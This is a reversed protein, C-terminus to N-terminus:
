EFEIIGTKKYVKQMTKRARRRAAEAGRALIAKLTDEDQRLAHYREQIPRLQEVVAEGLETKFDAYTKGAFREELQQITEGTAVSFITLLNSIAPREEANFRIDTGSDTVARKLKNRVVDPADDLYITAKANEDSKSMKKTPEQLSMIRAGVKPIYPDPVTFTPSHRNNFREALNRALELHQKQDAGVPVLDAQYLLIDAAMLVPYTFLGVNASHRETKEKFQTMKSCEGMSTFCNLVWTLQSHEPVHSQIFITSREPDIGSAIYMAAADLSRRRLEAPVPSITLAHLNVICFICDHTEQLVVWNKLAGVYNGLMLTHTPQMGSFIVPRRTQQQESMTTYRFLTISVVFICIKSSFISGQLLGSRSTARLMRDKAEHETEAGRQVAAAHIEAEM